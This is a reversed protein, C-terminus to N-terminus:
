STEGYKVKVLGTSDRFHTLSSYQASALTHFNCMKLLLRRQVHAM